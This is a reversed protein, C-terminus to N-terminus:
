LFIIECLMHYPGCNCIGWFNELVQHVRQLQDRHHTRIALQMIYLQIEEPLFDWYSRTQVAHAM